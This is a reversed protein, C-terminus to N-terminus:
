GILEKIKKKIKIFNIHIFRNNVITIKDNRYYYFGKEAKLVAKKIRV